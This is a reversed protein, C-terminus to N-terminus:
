ERIPPVSSPGRVLPVGTPSGGFDSGPSGPGSSGPQSSSSSSVRRSAHRPSLAQIHGSITRILRVGRNRLTEELMTRDAMLRHIERTKPTNYVNVRWRSDMTLELFFHEDIECTSHDDCRLAWMYGKPQSLVNQENVFDRLKEKATDPGSASRAAAENGPYRKLLLEGATRLKEKATDAWWCLLCCGGVPCLLGGLVWVELFTPTYKRAIINAESIFDNFETLSCFEAVGEALFVNGPDFGGGTFLFPHRPVFHVQITKKVLPQSPGRRTIVPPLPPQTASDESPPTPALKEDQVDSSPADPATDPPAATSQQVGAENLRKQLQKKKKFEFVVHRLTFSPIVGTIRFRCTPCIPSVQVSKLLCEECFAHGCDTEVPQDLIELCIPCQLSTYEM